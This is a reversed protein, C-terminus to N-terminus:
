KEISLSEFKTIVRAGPIKIYKIQLKNSFFFHVILFM